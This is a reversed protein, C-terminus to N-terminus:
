EAFTIPISQFCCDNYFCYTVIKLYLIGYVRIHMGNLFFVPYVIYRKTAKDGTTYDHHRALNDRVIDNKEVPLDRSGFDFGM